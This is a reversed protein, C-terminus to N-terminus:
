NWSLCGQRPAERLCRKWSGDKLIPRPSVKRWDLESATNKCEEAKGVGGMGVKEQKGSDVFHCSGKTQHEKLLLFVGM